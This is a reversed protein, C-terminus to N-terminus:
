VQEYQVVTANDDVAILITGDDSFACQRVFSNAYLNKNPPQVICCAKAPLDGLNFISM